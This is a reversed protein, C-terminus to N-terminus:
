KCLRFLLFWDSSWPTYLLIINFCIKLFRPTLIHVPNIQSLIPVSPSSKHVCYHVKPNMFALFKELLQPVTLKELVLWVSCCTVSYPLM